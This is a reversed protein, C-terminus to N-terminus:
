RAIGANRLRARLLGGDAGGNGGHFFGVKDFPNVFHLPAVGVFEPLEELFILDRSQVAFFFQSVYGGVGDVARSEVRSFVGSPFVADYDGVFVDRGGCVATFHFLLEERVLGRHFAFFIAAPFERFRVVIQRNVGDIWISVARFLQIEYHSAAVYSM